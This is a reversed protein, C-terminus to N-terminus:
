NAESIARNLHKYLALHASTNLLEHAFILEHQNINLLDDPILLDCSIKLCQHARDIGGKIVIHLEALLNIRLHYHLNVRDFIRRTKSISDYDLEINLEFVLLLDKLSNRWLLPKLLDETM